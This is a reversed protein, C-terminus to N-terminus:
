LSVVNRGTAPHDVISADMILPRDNGVRYFCAYISGANVVAEHVRIAGYNLRAEGSPFLRM